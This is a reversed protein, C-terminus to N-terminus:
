AQQLQSGGDVYVPNGFPINLGFIGNRTFRTISAQNMAMKNIQPWYTFKVAMQYMKQDNPINKGTKTHQVL